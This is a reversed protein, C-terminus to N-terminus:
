DKSYWRLLASVMDEPLASEAVIVTDFQSQRALEAVRNGPVLVPLKLLSRILAPHQSCSLIISLLNELLEGSHVVVASLENALLGDCIAGAAATSRQRQYLAIKTVEAGRESLITELLDRGGEGAFIMVRKGSMNQLQPLKLLGESSMQQGDPIIVDINFESVLEATSRGIAFCSAQPPLQLGQRQLRAVVQNVATRSVFVLVDAQQLLANDLAEPTNVIQMVPYHHISAGQASAMLSFQDNGSEPRVLLLDMGKLSVTDASEAVM